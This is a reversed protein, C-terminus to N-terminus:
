TASRRCRTLTAAPPAPVALSGDAAGEAPARASGEPRHVGNEGECGRKEGEPQGAVEDAAPAGCARGLEGRPGAGERRVGQGRRGEGPARSVAPVPPGEAGVVAEAPEQGRREEARAGQQPDTPAGGPREREEYAPRATPTATAAGSCPWKAPVPMGAACSWRAKRGPRSTATAPLTTPVTAATPTASHVSRSRGSCFASSRAPIATAAPPLAAEPRPSDPVARKM